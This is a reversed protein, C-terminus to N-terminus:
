ATGNRIKVITIAFFLVVFAGVALVLNRQRIVKQRQEETISKKTPTTPDYEPWCGTLSWHPLCCFLYLISYKFLRKEPKMADDDGTRTRLGVPVSFALFLGSLVAASVAYILGTGGIM